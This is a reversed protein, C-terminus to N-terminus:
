PATTSWIPEHLCSLSLLSFLGLSYHGGVPHGHMFPWRSDDDDQYLHSSAQSKESRENSITPLCGHRRDVSSQQHIRGGVTMLSRCPLFRQRWFWRCRRGQHDMLRPEEDWQDPSRFPDNISIPISTIVSCGSEPVRVGIDEQPPNWHSSV